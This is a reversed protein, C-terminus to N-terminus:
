TDLSLKFIQNNSAEWIETETVRETERETERDAQRERIRVTKKLQKKEVPMTGVANLNDLITGYVHIKLCPVGSSMELYLGM